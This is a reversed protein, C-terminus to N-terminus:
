RGRYFTNRGAEARGRIHPAYPRNLRTALMDAERDTVTARASPQRGENVAAVLEAMGPTAMGRRSVVGEGRELVAPVEAGPIGTVNSAMPAAATTGFHFKPPPTNAIIAIATATQAAAIGGAVLPALPGAVPVYAATLAIGNRIGEITAAAIQLAQMRKFGARANQKAEQERERLLKRREEEDAKLAALEAEAVSREYATMDDQTATFEALQERYTERSEARQQQLQAVRAGHQASEMRALTALNNILPTFSHTLLNAGAAAKGFDETLKPFPNEDDDGGGGGMGLMAAIAAIEERLATVAEQTFGANVTTGQMSLDLNTFGTHADTIAINGAQVAAVYKSVEATAERTAAAGTRTAAAQENTATTTAPFSMGLMALAAAEDEMFEAHAKSDAGAKKTAAALRDAEAALAAVEAKTTGAQTGAKEILMALPALAPNLMVFKEAAFAVAGALASMGNAVISGAARLGLMADDLKTAAPAADAGMTVALAAAAQENLKLTAEYENLAALQAPTFLQELAIGAEKLADRAELGADATDKLGAAIEGLIAPAIALTGFAVGLLAMSDSVGETADALDLLDGGVGGIAASFLGRVASAQENFSQEIERAARKAEREADRVAKSQARAIQKAADESARASQQFARTLERQMARAEKATLEGTEALKRNILSLDIDVGILATEAM